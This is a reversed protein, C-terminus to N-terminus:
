SHCGRSVALTASRTSLKQRVEFLILLGTTQSSNTAPDQKVPWRITLKKLTEPTATGQALDHSPQHGSTWDPIDLHDPPQCPGSFTTPFLATVVSFATAPVATLHSPSFM